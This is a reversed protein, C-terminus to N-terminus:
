IFAYLFSTMVHKLASMEETEHIPILYASCNEPVSDNCRAKIASLTEEPSDEKSFLETLDNDTLTKAISDTCMLFRDDAQIDTIQTIDIDLPLRSGRIVKYDATKEPHKGAPNNPAETKFIIKGQRFQYIRGNGAHALYVRDAAFYLLCVATAMGKADPNEKVHEDFRIETYRIAKQIFEPDINAEDNLFMNFYTQISDCAILSAAEGRNSDGVGDCVLFLRDNATGCDGNPYIPDEHNLRKGIESISFPKKITIDM